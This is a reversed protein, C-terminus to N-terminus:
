FYLLEGKFYILGHRKLIFSSIFRSPNTLSYSSVLKPFYVSIDGVEGVTNVNSCVMLEIVIFTIKVDLALM